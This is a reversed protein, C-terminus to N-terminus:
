VEKYMFIHDVYNGKHSLGKPLTGYEIFGFKKYMEHAVPNDAFCGLIVIKLNELNKKAEELILNMLINGIGEGRFEKAISIGFDGIHKEAKDKMEIGTIGILTDKHFVLLTTDQGNKIKKLVRTLFAMEEKLTVDEGQYLIFTQEKSLVNIYRHMEVVDTKVPYRVIIDTGKKTKGTYVVTGPKM